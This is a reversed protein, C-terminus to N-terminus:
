AALQSWQGQQELTHELQRLRTCAALTCLAKQPRVSTLAQSDPPGGDQDPPAAAALEDDADYSADVDPSATALWGHGQQIATWQQRAAHEARILFGEARTREKEHLGECFAATVVHTAEELCGEIPGHPILGAFSADRAMARILPGVALLAALNAPRAVDVAWRWGLGGKPAALAAQCLGEATTGPFLREMAHAAASEFQQSDGAELLDRGHARLIHNVRCVGLSQRSIVHETQADSCVEARQRVARVVQAKQSVQAAVVHGPGTTVGLTLTGGDVLAVAAQTKVVELEWAVDRAALVETSAVYTSSRQRPGTACHALSPWKRTLSACSFLSLRRPSSLTTM